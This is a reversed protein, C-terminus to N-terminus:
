LTEQKLDTQEELIEGTDQDVNPPPNEAQEGYIDYASNIIKDREMEAYLGAIKYIEETYKENSHLMHPAIIAMIEFGIKCILVFGGNETERKHYTLYESEDLLPKIYDENFSYIRRGDPFLWYNNGFWEINIKLPEIDTEDNVNDAYNITTPMECENRIWDNHKDPPIDFIRLVVEPSMRPMGRMSYMAIGNSVWQEGDPTTYIILHKNRKFLAAITKLKM